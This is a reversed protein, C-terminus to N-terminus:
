SPPRPLTDVLLGDELWRTLLGLVVTAPETPVPKPIGPTAETVPAIECLEAFPLGQRSAGLLDAEFAGFQLPYEIKVPPHDRSAFPAVVRHIEIAM